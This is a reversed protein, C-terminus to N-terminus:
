IGGVFRGPALIADPDFQAKVARMLELGPVPGWVDVADRWQPPASVVTLTGELQMTAARAAEVFRAFSPADPAEVGVWATGVLASGIMGLEVPTFVGEDILPKKVVGLALRCTYILGYGLTIALMVRIRHRRFLGDITAKDTIEPLDPGTAFFKLIGGAM